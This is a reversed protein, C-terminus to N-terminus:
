KDNDTKEKDTDTSQSNDESKKEEDNAEGNSNKKDSNNEEEKDGKKKKGIKILRKEDDIIKQSVLLNHVTDSVKVGQKLWYKIRDTKFNGEKQHPNWNGLIEVSKGTPSTKHEQLVIRFQARNRRGTRAFRIVLM